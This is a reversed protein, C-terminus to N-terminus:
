NYPNQAKILAIVNKGEKLGPNEVSDKTISAIVTEGGELGIEIEANVAGIYVAKVSSLFQNRASAKM